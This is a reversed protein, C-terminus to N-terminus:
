SGSFGLPISIEIRAGNEGSDVTLDGNLASVRQALVFPGGAGSRIEELTRRGHFPFGSGNDVVEIRMRGDTTTVTVDVESAGGHKSSNTVAEQILRLTEQGLLEAVLPDIRDGNFRISVSWQNQFRERWEDLRARFDFKMEARRRPGLTEVYARLERQDAMISSQVETLMRRAQEPDKDLIDHVTELRLVIGTFSQLLGDHLDRAVRMREGAVAEGIRSTVQSVCDFQTAILRGLVEGALLMEPTARAVGPLFMRGEVTDGRVPFSLAATIEYQDRFSRNIVAVSADPTAGSSILCRGDASVAFTAEELEGCTLPSFRGAVAEICDFRDDSYSAVVTWPEDNEEWAIIARDCEFIEACISLVDRALDRVNPRFDGPWRRLISSIEKVSRMAVTRRDDDARRM